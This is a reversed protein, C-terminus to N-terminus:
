ERLGVAELAEGHDFFTQERIVQGGSVTFLFACEDGVVAGSSLGSAKLSGTVLVRRDGLDILAEPEFRWDGWEDDWRRQFDIRADRGRYVPELGLAVFQPPVISEVNPHYLMFTADLDRRKFAEFGQGIYRRAIAQRLGSRPPLLSYLAWLARALLAVVRPFRVLHQELRRRSRDAVGLPQRVIERTDRLVSGGLIV